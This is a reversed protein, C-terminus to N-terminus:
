AGTTGATQAATTMAAPRSLGAVRLFERGLHEAQMPRSANKTHAPRSADGSHIPRSAAEPPKDKSWIAYDTYGLPAGLTAYVQSMIPVHDGFFCLAAPGPLAQLERQLMGVMRDANALHRLYVTLDECHPPPPQLYLREEDEAGVSELHLPGHNEMTIAFVFLPQGPRADRLLAAIKEAVAVDGTYPGAKATGAFSRIDLFEDFGLLPYVKSRRYFSAPYPHICITRYGIRRLASAISEIGQQPLRRYPNFRHVGLADAALGTLFAFESRVTNAGWAPVRLLGHAESAAQLEDWEALVERRVGDFLRRADFFSESQVAVLQPLAMAHPPLVDFPPTSHAVTAPIHREDAAYRWLCALLGCRDLDAAPDYSMAPLSRHAWALLVAAVVFAGAMWAAFAAVPVSRTLPAEFYLGAAAAAIVAAAAALTRWVGLFPIYLRPHTLADTFYEYDQAVFPERLAQYKANNVLVVVLLLATEIAAAFWPRRLVAAFLAFGALWLAAHVALAAPPRRWLAAPVPQLARELLLSAALSAAFPPLLALWLAEAM